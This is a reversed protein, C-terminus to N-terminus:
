ATAWAKQDIRDEGFATSVGGFLRRHLRKVVTDLRSADVVLGLEIGSGGFTMMSIATDGLESLVEAAVGPVETLREGV